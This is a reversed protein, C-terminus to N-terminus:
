QVVHLSQALITITRSCVKRETHRQLLSEAGSMDKAFEEAAIVTKRDNVWSLLDSYFCTVNWSKVYMCICRFWEIKEEKVSPWLSVESVKPCGWTKLRTKSGTVFTHVVVYINDNIQVPNKALNVYVYDTNYTTQFVHYCHNSSPSWLIM